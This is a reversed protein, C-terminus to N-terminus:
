KRMLAGGVVALLSLGCPALLGVLGGIMTYTPKGYLGGYLALLGGVVGLAGLPLLISGSVLEIGTLHAILPTKTSMSVIGAVVALLGGILALTKGIV